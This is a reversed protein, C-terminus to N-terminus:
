EGWHIPWRYFATASRHSPFRNQRQARDTIGDVHVHGTRRVQGHEDQPDAQGTRLPLVDGARHGDDNHLRGSQRCREGQLEAVFFM